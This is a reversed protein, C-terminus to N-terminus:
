LIELKDEKVGYYSKTLTIGVSDYKMSKQVALKSELRPRLSNHKQLHPYGDIVVILKNLKPPFVGLLHVVPRFPFEVQLSQPSAM